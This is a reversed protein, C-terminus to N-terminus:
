DHLSRRVTGTVPAHAGNITTAPRRTDRPSSRPTDPKRLLWGPGLGGLIVTREAAQIGSHLTLMEAPTMSMWAWITM